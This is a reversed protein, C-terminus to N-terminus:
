YVNLLFPNISFSLWLHVPIIAFAKNTKFTSFGAIFCLVFCHQKSACFLFFFVHIFFFFVTIQRVLMVASTKGAPVLPLIKKCAQGMRSLCRTLDGPLCCEHCGSSRVPCTAPPWLVEMEVSFFGRWHSQPLPLLSFSVSVGDQSPYWVMSNVEVKPQQNSKSCSSIPKSVGLLHM